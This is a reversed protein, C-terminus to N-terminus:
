RMRTVIRGRTPGPAFAKTAASFAAVCQEGYHEHLEAVIFSVREIWPASDGRVATRSPRWMVATDASRWKARIRESRRKTTRLHAYARSKCKSTQILHSLPPM